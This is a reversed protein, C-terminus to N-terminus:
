ASETKKRRQRLGAFSTVVGHLTRVEQETCQARQFLNRLNRVMSPRKEANRMFGSRDLEEELHQFFQILQRKTAPKSRATSIQEDPTVDGANFWEYGLILVSQALNLSSFAPNLPVSIVVESLSIHDNLLGSREPGFLIGAAEGAALLPKMEAVAQRPTVTRKVMFRDRATAAYVHRLDAVADEIRNFLKAKDLVADAGSAAAVAKVSPWGDRPKVLRLDTLGCNFMARAATGINEGLQPEVLIIAPGGSFRARRRDTGAM